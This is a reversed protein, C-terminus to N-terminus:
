PARREPLRDTGLLASVVQIGGDYSVAKGSSKSKQDLGLLLLSDERSIGSTKTEEDIFHWKMAHQPFIFCHM